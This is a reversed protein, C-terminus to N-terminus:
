AFFTTLTFKCCIRLNLHLPLNSLFYEKFTRGKSWGIPGTRMYHFLLKYIFTSIIQKIATETIHMFCLIAPIQDM